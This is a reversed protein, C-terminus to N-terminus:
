RAPDIVFEGLDRMEGSAVWFEKLVKPKGDVFTRLRYTAGPILAPFVVRGQDDPEDGAGIRYNVRDINSVFDSDGLLEGRRAAEFDYPSPGPTVALHLSPSPGTHPDGESNVYHVVAEGCQKLMATVDEGGRVMVTAGLQNKADLIHVPLEEGEKLGPVKFRGGLTPAVQGRWALSGPMRNHKSVVIAEAVSKGNEDVIRGNVPSCRDLEINVELQDDSPQPDLRHVAQAYNRQGGTKGRSVEREAITLTIFRGSEEQVFLRGPGPLVAIAFRGQQDSLQIGQWGTLIDDAVNPNNSTEPRYQISAGAVPDGSGAEVVKGRVLVGRPLSVDVQRSADGERWRISEPGNPTKRALYPQGDPPYATVGFRIGPKPSIRYRGEADAKGAVSVMSGYLEQQSAWVTLRARPAPEGTDEYTVVGEFLQAPALALVAEEDPAVNRTLARYTGDRQGRQEPLGTNLMIEQPAFRENGNTTLFVGYGAPVGRIVFRGESDSVKPSIWADPPTDGRYGAGDRSMRQGEQRKIINVVMLQVGAAPQGEIDILKGRIPEEPQLVLSADIRPEALNLMTKWAVAAGDRRAILQAFKHTSPTAGTIRLRYTGDEGVVAKALLDAENSLDGGRRPRTRLAVVAVYAGNAPAGSSLTVTGSVVIAQQEAVYSAAAAKGAEARKALEKEDLLRVDGLDKSEGPAVEIVVDLPGSFKPARRSRAMMSERDTAELGYEVGPVLGAIEFRGNSDTEYQPSSSHIVNHPLPAAKADVRREAPSATPLFHRSLQCNPLPEGDKDVLRGMVKGAPQLQVVLDEPLEGQVLTHGALQREQQVFYVHRPQEPNYSVIEFKDAKSRDWSGAFEALQGTHYFDTVPEGEPDVVRGIATTGRDLQLNLEVRESQEHPNVEAVLHSNGPMLYSPNTRIIEAVETVSGDSKLIGKARPYIQHNDANFTVYGEGPLAVLRYRGENDSRLRDREDVGLSRAMRYHPSSEPVYYALTGLLGEGTRKDTVRGEVWVGRRLDFDVLTTEGTKTPAAKETSFYATDGRPAIAAISNDKGIPMGALQYRGEADTVARVFDQGWGGIREGHRRQSKVTIGVLPEKTEADRVVGTIAASPGAVHTFESAHYTYFGLDPSRRERMLKIAEGAETRAWIKASEVGPGELLLWAIKGDGIGHVQFRGDADTTVPAIVSRLQPGNMSRPTQMRASYYDAKPEDAAKRWADLTGDAGTWTELLTLRAGAVPQGNIDVIRGRIPQSEAQLKLPQGKAALMKKAQEAYAPPVTKLREKVKRLAEGSTEFLSAAAWAFGFDPHTAVIQSYGFERATAHAGFDDPKTMFRFQGKANTTALPEWKPRLPGEAQPIHFVLYLEAGAAPNGDPDVVMGAFEEAGMPQAVDDPQKAAAVASRKPKPREDTSVDITGLDIKEGPTIALDEALVKFRIRASELYVNYSTGPLVGTQEFRGQEDTTIEVLEPSFDGGPRPSFRIRAGSLPIEGGDVIQGRVTVCPELRVSVEDPSDQASLQLAKGLRREPHYILLTRDETTGLASVELLSGEPQTWRSRRVLGAASAGKVPEGREDVVSVHVTRSRKLAFDATYEQADEPVNIERLSTLSLRSPEVVGQYSSLYGRSNAGPIDDFGQGRPYPSENWLVVGAIAKGPLGVMSYTGDPAITYRNQYGDAAGGEYEPLGNANPNSRHPFYQAFASRSGVIPKGTAEDTVQGTIWVGRHLDIDMEIPEVGVQAPVEYRRMLYPQDDNPWVMIQNQEGKPMGVLRFRGESDSVARLRVEGPLFRRIMSNERVAVGALPVGTEADRVVGEIPQTPEVIIQANAGYITPSTFFEPDDAVLPEMDRTVITTLTYAITRGSLAVRIQRERGVGTILFVGDADTKVEAPAHPPNIRTRRTFHENMTRWFWEGRGIAALWEDLSEDGSGDATAAVNCVAVTVGSVPNGELDVVNGRIPVDDRVLQLTLSDAVPKDDPLLEFGPGLGARGAVIAIDNTKPYSLEFGGDPRSETRALPAKPAGLDHIWAQAEVTAGSVPAGSPDVVKGRVTVTSKSTQEGAAREVPKMRVPEPREESAIDIVGLDITEGAVVTVNKAVTTFGLGRGEALLTYGLGPLLETHEFRGEKDTTTRSLERGYDNDGDVDVRLKVGVVPTGDKILRGHITAMPELTIERPSPQAGDQKIRLGKGLRREPHSLLVTRNEGPRFCVLDFEASEMMQHAGYIETVGTVEVGDLPNGSPDLTRLTVRDGADLSFDLVSGEGGESVRVEKMATPWRESPSIAGNLRMFAQRDGIEEIKDYGQGGPYPDLIAKVGVVGRGPLAVVRYRGETDTRYRDQVASCHTGYEFEALDHALENDPFAMYFVQAAVPEGTTKNTVRGSVWRGRNLDINFEVPDIGTPDPIEFEATFYPLDTPVVVIENGSGKPMGELRYRGEADSKTKITTIGSIDEGAFRWSWIEAGVIPEGSDADRVVGTIARSPAATYEFEAGYQTVTDANEYAYAPHIIPKITRTAVRLTQTVITPGSVHLKVIRERGFGSVRFRGDSDTTIEPWHSAVHQPVGSRMVRYATEIAQSARIAELYEDLTDAKPEDIAGVEVRVGSVPNGELDIVRGEIPVDDVALRVTPDEGPKLRSYHIWGPGYGEAFAAIFTERWQNPRGATEAFQSKRYSIEFRGVADAKTTSLPKKDGYNWFWRLVYVDVGGAPQGDPKVVRGRVTILDDDASQESAPEVAVNSAEAEAPAPAVGILGTMTAGVGGCVLVTLLLLNGVRTSLSRSTDMIRTVRKALMSRLSVIGVGAAAIPASSLEAIDVLRHAYEERDGGFQVVYDDCVEEATMEIRRSLVWLLPQFFFLATALQRLLNWLCDHRRLHALEHILVERLPLSCETEPLLVAPKRVGSLCPSPLYPSCRVEPPTVKMTESLQQCADRTVEDAYVASRRLSALRWWAVLLRMALLGAVVVWVIVAIAATKGYLTITSAPVATAAEHLPQATETLEAVVPEPTIPYSQPPEIGVSGTITQGINFPTESDGLLDDAATAPAFGPSSTSVDVASRSAVRAAPVESAQAVWAQPMEISWGSFGVQSLAFTAVPCVLAATLATRYVVSQVASGRNRLLVGVLLGISALLTSQLMWNAAFGIVSALADIWATQTSFLNM